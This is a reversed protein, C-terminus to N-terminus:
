ASTHDQLAWKRMRELGTWDADVYTIAGTPCAKACEPDGGCLDCKIVKGTNQNYNITGFPCALTCVKCGVCLSDNVEKAGTVLNMTIADVPCAQM